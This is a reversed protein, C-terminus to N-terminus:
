EWVGSRQLCLKLSARPIALYDAISQLSIPEDDLNLFRGTSRKNLVQVDPLAWRVNGPEYGQNNDIRDISHESSPRLGIYALFAPYNERWEECVTIGRGGYSAYKPNQKQYCRAKMRQWTTYEVPVAGDRRSLGHTINRETRQESNYCGCSQILGNSLHIGKAIHTKGCDCQCSWRIHGNQRDHVSLAVLRAYRQGARDIFRSM